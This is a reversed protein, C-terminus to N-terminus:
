VLGITYPSTSHFRTMRIRPEVRVPPRTVTLPINEFNSCHIWNSVIIISSLYTSPTIKYIEQSVSGRCDKYSRSKENLIGDRSIFTEIVFIFHELIRSIINRKKRINKALIESFKDMKAFVPM